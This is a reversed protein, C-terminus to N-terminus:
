SDIIMMTLTSKINNMLRIRSIIEKIESESGAFIKIVLDYVGVVCKIDSVNPLKKLEEMLDKEFGLECNILVFAEVENRYTPREGTGYASKIIHHAIDRLTSTALDKAVLGSDVYCNVISNLAKELVEIPKEKDEIAKESFL